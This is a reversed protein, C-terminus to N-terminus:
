QTFNTTETSGANITIYNPARRKWEANDIREQEARTQIRVTAAKYKDLTDPSPDLNNLRWCLYETLGKKFYQLLGVDNIGTRPAITEFSTIYEDLKGETMRLKELDTMAKAAKNLPGWDKKFCHQLTKLEEWHREGPKKDIFDDEREM